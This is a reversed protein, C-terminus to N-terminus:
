LGDDGCFQDPHDRMASRAVKLLRCWEDVLDPRQYPLYGFIARFMEQAYKAYHTKRGYADRM